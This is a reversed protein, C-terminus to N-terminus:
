PNIRSGHDHAISDQRNRAILDLHQLHIHDLQITFFVHKFSQAGDVCYDLLDDIFVLWVVHGNFCGEKPFIYLTHQFSPRACPTAM